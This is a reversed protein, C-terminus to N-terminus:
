YLFTYTNRPMDYNRIKNELRSWNQESFTRETYSGQMYDTIQPKNLLKPVLTLTDVWTVQAVGWENKWCPLRSVSMNVSSSSFRCWITFTLWRWPSPSSFYAISTEPLDVDPQHLLCVCIIVIPWHGRDYQVYESVDTTSCGSSNWTDSQVTDSWVVEVHPKSGAQLFSIEHSKGGYFGLSQLSCVSEDKGACPTPSRRTNKKLLSGASDVPIRRGRNKLQTDRSQM